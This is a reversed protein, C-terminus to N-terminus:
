GAKGDYIKCPKIEIVNKAISKSAQRKMVEVQIFESIKGRWLASSSFTVGVLYISIMMLEYLWVKGEVRNSLETEGIM